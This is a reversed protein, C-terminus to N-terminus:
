PDGPAVAVRNRGSNKAQYLAVDARRMLDNFDPPSTNTSAAVGISLTFPITHPGLKAPSEATLIRIREALTRAAEADTEPALVGFEEGGLRVLIDFARIQSRICAVAHVLVADGAEHGYHDNVHKFHDLDLMLFAPNKQSRAARRMEAQAIEFFKRRNYVGTLPDTSALRELLEEHRKRDSVDRVSGVSWWREQHHFGAVSREVPITQGTKNRATFAMVTGIVPGAGTKAFYPMARQARIRDEDLAVLDHLERGVAEAQTYGFLREAAPSFFQILGHDDLMILPDLSAEMMARLMSENRALAEEAQRRDEVDVLTHVVGQFEGNKTFRPKATDILTRYAGSHHRLRYAIQIARRQFLAAGLAQAADVADDPHILEALGSKLEVARDRGTFDLWAQNVFRADGRKDTIRIPTPLFDAFGSYAPINEGGACAESEGGASEADSPKRVHHLDDAPTKSEPRDEM